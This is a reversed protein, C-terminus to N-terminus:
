QRAVRHFEQFAAHEEVTRKSTKSRGFVYATKDWLFNSAIGSTRKVPQPVFLRKPQPSRGSHDRLDDVSIVNGDARLVIAFSIKEESYGSPAVAGLSELREYYNLLGQLIM